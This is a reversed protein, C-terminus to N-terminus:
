EMEVGLEFPVKSGPDPLKLQPPPPFEYYEFIRRLLCRNRSDPGAFESQYPSPCPNDILGENVQRRALLLDVNDVFYREELAERVGAEEIECVPAGSDRPRYECDADTGLVAPRAWEMLLARGRVFEAADRDDLFQAAKAHVYSSQEDGARSNAVAAFYKIVGNTALWDADKFHRAAELWMDAAASQLGSEVLAERSPQAEGAIGCSGWASACIVFIYRASDRM